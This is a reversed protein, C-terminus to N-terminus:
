SAAKWPRRGRQPRFGRDSRRVAISCRGISRRAPGYGESAGGTVVVARGYRVLSAVVGLVIVAIGLGEISRGVADVTDGFDM